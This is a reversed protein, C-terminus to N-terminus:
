RTNNNTKVIPKRFHTRKKLCFVAYTISMLSQLESTHEESRRYSRSPTRPSRSPFGHQAPCCIHWLWSSCADAFCQGKTRGGHRQPTTLHGPGQRFERCRRDASFRELDRCGDVDM